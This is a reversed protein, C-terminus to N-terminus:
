CMNQLCVEGEPDRNVWWDCLSDNSPVGTIFDPALKIWEIDGPQGDTTPWEQYQTNYVDLADQIANRAEICSMSITPPPTPVLIEVLTIEFNLDEGALPHTNESTLPGYAKDAPIHVNRTQGLQMGIVTQEFCQLLNGEGITFEIPDGAHLESSDFVTGDNLTGTYLVKVTDGEKAGTPDPLFGSLPIDWDCPGSVCVFYDFTHGGELYELNCGGIGPSWFKWELANCDYWFVGIVEDPITCLLLDALVVQGYYSDPLHNPFCSQACFNWTHTPPASAVVLDLRTKEDSQFTATQTAKFGNIYFEILDGTSIHEGQVLLNTQYNYDPFGARGWGYKGQEWTTVSGSDIGNVKTSILTELPAAVGGITVGGYSQHPFATPQAQAPTLSVLIYILVVITIIGINKM